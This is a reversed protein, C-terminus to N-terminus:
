LILLLAIFGIYTYMTVKHLHQIVRGLSIPGESAVLHELFTISNCYDKLIDNISISMAILYIDNTNNDTNTKNFQIEYKNIFCQLKKYYLGLPLLIQLQDIESINFLDFGPKIQYKDDKNNYIIVDGTFGLLAAFIEHLM